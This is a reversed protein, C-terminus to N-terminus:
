AQVADAAVAPRHELPAARDVAEAVGATRVRAGHRLGVAPEVTRHEGQSALALVAEVAQTERQVVVLLDAALGRAVVDVRGPDGRLDAGLADDVGAGAGGGIGAAQHLDERGGAGGDRAADAVAPFAALAQVVRLGADHQAGGVQALHQVLGAALGVERDGAVVGTGSRQGAPARLAGAHVPVEPDFGDAVLFGTLVDRTHQAEAPDVGPAQVAIRQPQGLPHLPPRVPRSLLEPARRTGSPPITVAIRGHAAHLDVEHAAGDAVP